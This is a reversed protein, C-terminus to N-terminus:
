FKGNYVVESGNLPRKTKGTKIQETGNIIKGCYRADVKKGISKIFTKSKSM